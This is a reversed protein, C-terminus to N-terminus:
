TQADLSNAQGAEVTSDALFQHWEPHVLYRAGRQGPSDCLLASLGQLRRKARAFSAESIRSRLCADEWEKATLGSYEDNCRVTIADTIESSAGSSVSTRNTMSFLVRLVAKETPSLLSYAGNAGAQLTYVFSSMEQDELKVIKRRFVHPSAPEHDKQKLVEMRVSAANDPTTVSIHTDVGAALATSGRYEGSKNDHHVLLISASTVRSIVQLSQLFKAMDRAMNEDLGASCLVLTDVIILAFGTGLKKFTAWLKAQSSSEHLAVTERLVYFDKIEDIESDFKWIAVRKPIGSGGEAAIYLVPGQIVPHGHWDNGTAVCLGMDLAIASKGSSHRGSLMALSNLPVIDKILFNPAPENLLQEVSSLPYTTGGNVTEQPLGKEPHLIWEELVEVGALPLADIWAKLKEPNHGLKEWQDCIRAGRKDNISFINVRLNHGQCAMALLAANSRGTEDNSFIIHVQKIGISALEQALPTYDQDDNFISVAPVGAEYMVMCDLESNVLTVVTSVYPTNVHKAQLAAILHLGLGPPRQLTGEDSMLQSQDSPYNTSHPLLLSAGRSNDSHYTIVRYGNVHDKVRLNRKTKPTIGWDELSKIQQPLVPISLSFKM